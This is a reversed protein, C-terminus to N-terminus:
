VAQHECLEEDCLANQLVIILARLYNQITEVEASTQETQFVITSYRMMPPLLEQSLTRVVTEAIEACDHENLGLSEKVQFVEKALRGILQKQM